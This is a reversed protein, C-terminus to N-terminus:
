FRGSCQGLCSCHSGSYFYGDRSYLLLFRLHRWGDRWTNLHPPRGRGDPALTTPIETIKLRFTTAKVIMEGAYEMGLSRLELREIAEKRFARLGCNIDGIPSRFFLRM